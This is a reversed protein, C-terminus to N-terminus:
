PKIYIKDTLDSPDFSKYGLWIEPESFMNKFTNLARYDYISTEIDRSRLGKNKQNLIEYQSLYKDQTARTIYYTIMVIGILLLIISFNYLLTNM